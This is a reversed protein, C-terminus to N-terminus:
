PRSAYLTPDFRGWDKIVLMTWAFVLHTLGAVWWPVLKVIWAGGFLLPQLWSLVAYYNVLWLGLGMATAAAFQRRAPADAFYRTLAIQFFVGYVMGTSLYLVCGVALTLGSEMRLAGEGLPFTLYVRILELPHQRIAASGVVNLLLSAAAGFFGLIMGSLVHFTGYYGSPPWPGPETAGELEERLEQAQAELRELERIKEEREM